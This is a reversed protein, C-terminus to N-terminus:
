LSLRWGRRELWLGTASLAAALGAAQLGVLWLPAQAHWAPIGPLVVLALLLYHLLYLSLPNRGWTRLLHSRLWGRKALGHIIAFLVASVGLSILVYSASVRNKSVPVFVALLLGGALALLTSWLYGGSLKNADSAKGASYFLDGLASALILMAGWALSGPLGGHPSALVSELWFRDLLVQYIALLGLGLAARPLAPLSLAPLAVLIAVGIAQLVGWNYGGPNYGLLIEGAGLLSGIGILALARRVFHELTAGRGYRAVRRRLSPGFTLGIAFIFLPAVLDIITLGVDPAHKLAAPLTEVDAAYNALVMLLIALGRFQDIADLRAPSLLPTETSM